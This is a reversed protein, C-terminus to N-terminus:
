EVWGQHSSELCCGVYGCLTTSSRDAWYHQPVSLVCKYRLAIFGQWNLILFHEVWAVSTNVTAPRSGTVEWECASFPVVIGSLSSIYLWEPSSLDQNFLSHSITLHCRFIKLYILTWIQDQLSSHDHTYSILSNNTTNIIYLKWPWSDM